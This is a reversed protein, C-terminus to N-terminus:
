PDTGSGTGTSIDMTTGSTAVGSQSTGEQRSLRGTWSEADRGTSTATDACSSLLAAVPLILLGASLLLRPHKM